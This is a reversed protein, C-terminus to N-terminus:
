NKMWKSNNVRVRIELNAISMLFNLGKGDDPLPLFFQIAEGEARLSM